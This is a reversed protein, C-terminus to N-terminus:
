EGLGSTDMKREKKTDIDLKLIFSRLQPNFGQLTGTDSKSKHCVLVDSYFDKISFHKPSAQLPHSAENV